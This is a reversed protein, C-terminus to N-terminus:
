SRPEERTNRLKWLRKPRWGLGLYLLVYPEQEDVINPTPWNVVRARVVGEDQTLPWQSNPLPSRLERAINKLFNTGDGMSSAFRQCFGDLEDAQHCCRKWLVDTANDGYGRPTYRQEEYRLGLNHMIPIGYWNNYRITAGHIVGDMNDM